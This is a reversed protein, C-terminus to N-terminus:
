QNSKVLSALQNFAKSKPLIQKNRTERFVTERLYPYSAADITYFFSQVLFYDSVSMTNSSALEQIKRLAEKTSKHGLMVEGLVDNSVINKALNIEEKSFGNEGMVREIIPTTYKHQAHKGENTIALPKGIDHISIVFRFLRVIDIQSPTKVDRISFHPLQEAFTDYVMQTHRRIPYGEWVGASSSFLKKLEKDRSLFDMVLRGEFKTTTLLGDLEPSLTSTKVLLQGNKNYKRSCEGASALNAIM